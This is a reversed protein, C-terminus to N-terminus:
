IDVDELWCFHNHGPRVKYSDIWDYVAGFPSGPPVKTPIIGGNLRSRVGNRTGARYLNLGPNDTEQSTEWQVHMTAGESWAEFRKLRVSTPEAM